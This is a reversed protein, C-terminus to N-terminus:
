LLREGFTLFLRGSFVYFLDRARQVRDCRPQDEVLHADERVLMKNFRDEVLHFTGSKGVEDLRDM